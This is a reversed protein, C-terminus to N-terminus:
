ESLAAIVEPRALNGRVLDANMARVEAAAKKPDADWVSILKVRDAYDPGAVLARVQADSLGTSDLGVDRAKQHYADNVNAPGMRWEPLASPKTHKAATDGPKGRREAAKRAVGAQETREDASMAAIQEPTYGTAKLQATAADNEASDWGIKLDDWVGSALDLDNQIREGPTPLYASFPDRSLTSAVLPVAGEVGERFMKHVAAKREVSQRALAGAQQALPKSPPERYVSAPIEADKPAQADYEDRGAFWARSAAEEDMSPYLASYTDMAKTAADTRREEPGKPLGRDEFATGRMTADVRRKAAEASRHAVLDDLDQPTPQYGVPQPRAYKAAVEGPQPTEV